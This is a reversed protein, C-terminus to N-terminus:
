NIFGDLMSSFDDDSLDMPDTTKKSVKSASKGKSAATAKKRAKDAKLKEQEAKTKYAAKKRESEIRSKETEVAKATEETKVKEEAEKASLEAQQTTTKQSEYESNLEALAQRYQAISSQATYSGMVDTLKKENIRDQVAEFVGSSVHNVIDASAAPSKLLEVVSDSDWQERIVREVQDKVGSNSASEIVDDLAIEIPSTVHNGKSYKIADMDLEIPDIDLSKIHSKLAEQNGDFLDMMLNFKEPDDLMGRDKMPGMFKRYPKFAAMKDSYGYAMQQSQIIKKPDTFGKVKKGNAVFESTVEDHFTQLTKNSNLLEEYQKKYDVEDTDDSNEDDNQNTETDTDGDEMQTNEETNDDSDDEDSDDTDTDEGDDLDNTDTDDEDDDDSDTDQDTDEDDLDEDDNTDAANDDTDEDNGSTDDDESDSDLSNDDSEDDDQNEDESEEESDESLEAEETQGAEDLMAMFAEDDLKALEDDNM